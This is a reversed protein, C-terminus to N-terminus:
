IVKRCPHQADLIFATVDRLTIAMLYFFLAQLFFAIFDWFHKHYKDAPTDLHVSAGHAFRCVTPVFAILLLFSPLNESEIIQLGIFESSSLLTRSLAETISLGLVVYYIMKLASVSIRRVEQGEAAAM